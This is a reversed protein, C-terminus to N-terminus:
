TLQLKHRTRRAVVEPRHRGRGEKAEQAEVTKAFTFIYCGALFLLIAQLYIIVHLGSM